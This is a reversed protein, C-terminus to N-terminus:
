LIVRNPKEGDKPPPVMITDNKVPEKSKRKCLLLEFDYKGFDLSINIFNKKYVNKNIEQNIILESRLNRTFESDYWKKFKIVLIVQQERITWLYETRYVKGIYKELQRIVYPLDDADPPNMIFISRWDNKDLEIYTKNDKVPELAYFTKQNNIFKSVFSCACAIDLDPANDIHNEIGNIASQIFRLKTSIKSLEDEDFKYEM